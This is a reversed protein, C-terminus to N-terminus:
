ETLEHRQNLLPCPPTAGAYPNSGGAVPFDRTAGATDQDAGAADRTVLTLRYVTGGQELGTENHLFEIFLWWPEDADVQSPHSRFWCTEYADSPAPSALRGSEARVQPSVTRSPDPVLRAFHEGASTDLHAEFLPLGDAYNRVHVRLALSGSLETLNAAVIDFRAEADGSADVMYERGSDAADREVCGALVVLAAGVLAGRRM